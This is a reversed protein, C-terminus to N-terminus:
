WRCEVEFKGKWSAELGPEAVWEKLLAGFEQRPIEFAGMSLLHPNTVQCDLLGFSWHSLQKCLAILAMKSTDTERSFMSEGFFVKGLAMGYIGGVLEEGRWVEVSHALGQHHLDVFSSKLEETIWTGAVGARPEACAEVVKEFRTDASISFQGSNYRRRTRRSVHVNEPLLVCRPSPTWWLIPENASYWPFIGQRYARLLREPELDGGWALLGNPRVLAQEPPPFPSGPASGLMPLQFESM